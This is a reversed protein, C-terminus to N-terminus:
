INFLEAMMCRVSGGGYKEITPIPVAIIENYKSFFIIQLETLSNYAAQSMVLYRQGVSNVVQLMNGAFQQMQEETIEVIKKGSNVLSAVVAERETLNDISNICLVAYEDAVCMMVNTHYIPLRSNNASQYATFAIPTYDFDSCFRQFLTKDTRDSLAAYAIKNARDLIMSGTGELFMNEDEAFTYDVRSSTDYGLKHLTDLIEMRREVRRNSAYMPYLVVIGKQHFSVWNNPFISDPTHPNDNDKITIVTIGKEKLVEVMNCFEAHAQLQILAVEPNDNKQFYNNVATEANFGFAVPEIMLIHSTIQNEMNRDLM